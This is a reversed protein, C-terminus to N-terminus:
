IFKPKINIEILINIICSVHINLINGEGNLIFKLGLTVNSNDLVSTINKLGKINNTGDTKSKM